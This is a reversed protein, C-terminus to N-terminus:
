RARKAQRAADCAMALPALRTQDEIRCVLISYRGDRWLKFLVSLEHNTGRRKPIYATLLMYMTKELIAPTADGKNM